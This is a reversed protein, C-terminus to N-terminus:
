SWARSRERIYGKVAEVDAPQPDFREPRDFLDAYGSPLQPRVGTAREVADPFKAPHATALYVIPAAAEGAGRSARGVATHPCILDGDFAWADAMEQLTAADDVSAASFTERLTTLAAEPIEFSGSQAFAAYLRRVADSDRGLAEFLIREFNSAVQIDMAPSLTAEAAGREYRGTILARALMDNANTVIVIRDIPAGLQKAVWGSYADGFNGTPVVFSVPGHAALIHAAIQFYVSQAAVRAVNISNV